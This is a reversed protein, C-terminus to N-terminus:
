KKVINKVNSYDIDTLNFFVHEFYKDWSIRNDANEVLTKSFLDGLEVDFDEVEGIKNRMDKISDGKNKFIMEYMIEGLSLLDQKELTSNTIGTLNTAKGYESLKIDFEKSDNKFKVFINELKIDNHAIKEDKMNTLINNLQKLVIQIEEVNFGKESDDLFKKLNDDCFEIVIFIIDDEELKDLFKISNVNDSFLKMYNIEQEIDEKKTSSSLQIEKIAVLENSTKNKCQYVTADGISSIKQIKEYIKYVEYEKPETFLYKVIAVVVLAVSIIFAIIIIATILKLNGSSVENEKGEGNVLKEENEENETNKM